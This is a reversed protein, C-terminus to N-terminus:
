PPLLDAPTCFLEASLDKPREGGRSRDITTHERFLAFKRVLAPELTRQIADVVLRGLVPLFKYAHGSGATALVLGSDSPHFGIVWDGDPSDTYWCLRTSSFPKTALAPYVAQLSSRLLQVMAQPILLGETGHSVVTRPTSVPKDPGMVYNSYGTAHIALKVVDDKNPPFVYFGSVFDLVVPCKRYLDAEEPSLQITALSQGTSLCKESLDVDHFTSATWSGTAIIVLDAAITAGDHLKVGVTKGNERLLGTVHKGALLHGGMAVVQATMKSVGQAAFAWGGDMNLYGATNEFTGTKIEPPFVARIANDNELDTIRAGLAVDNLYAESAYPATKSGLVLVGSEHYTDGWEEVDKWAEIADRAFQAYFPDSYSTRVIKNLDTSAADPAPLVESRDVVTVHAFGRKLLHYATSIGFCGAGVVLIKDNQGVIM